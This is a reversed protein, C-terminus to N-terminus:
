LPSGGTGCRLFPVLCLHRLRSELRERAVPRFRGAPLITRRELLNREGGKEELRRVAETEVRVFFRLAEGSARSPLKEVKAELVEM